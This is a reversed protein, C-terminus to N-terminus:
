RIKNWVCFHIIKLSPLELLNNTVKEIKYNCDGIGNNDEKNNTIIM